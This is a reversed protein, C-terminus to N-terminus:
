HSESAAATGDHSTDVMQGGPSVMYVVVAVRVVVLRTRALRISPAVCVGDDDVVM